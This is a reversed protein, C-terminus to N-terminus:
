TVGRKAEVAFLGGPIVITVNNADVYVRGRRAVCGGLTLEDPDSAAHTSSAFLFGPNWRSTAGSRDWRVAIRDTGDAGAGPEVPGAVTGVMVASHILRVRDGQKWEDM